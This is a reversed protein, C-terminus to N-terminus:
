ESTTAIATDSSVTKTVTGAVVPTVSSTWTVTGGVVPTAPQAVVSSATEASTGTSISTVALPAYAKQVTVLPWAPKTWTYTIPQPVAIANTSTSTATSTTAPVAAVPVAAVPVAAVPQYTKSWTWSPYIPQWSKTWTWTLPQVNSTTAIPAPAQVALPQYSKYVNYSGGVPAASWTKRVNWYPATKLALAGAGIGIAAKALLLKALLFRKNRVLTKSQPNENAESAYVVDVPIQDETPTVKPHAATSQAVVAPSTAYTLAVTAFLVAFLIKMKDSHIKISIFFETKLFVV